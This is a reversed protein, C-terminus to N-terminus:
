IPLANHLSLPSIEPPAPENFFFNGSGSFSLIYTQTQAHSPNTPNARGGRPRGSRLTISPALVASRGFLGTRKMEKKLCFVAYSIGLHHLESTHEESRTPAADAVDM